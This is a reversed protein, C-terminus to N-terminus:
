GIVRVTSAEILDFDIAAGLGPGDYGHVLGARDPEIDNLVAYSQAATPLLIELYTCNAIALAVHLNAINNISNGGHHLEFSMHFGDALHAAKLVPTIGGKVAVDGRLHDTARMLIWAAYSHFGGPAYETAMVAIDLRACLKAYGAIDEENLPDEYWAYGHRELCRGLRVADAMGYAMAADWMLTFGDGVAARVAQALPEHLALDAPPHIKYGALGSDRIAIAQAVYADVTDLSPSSAYAPIAHRAAGLMRYVPLGVAKGGLDWLAVDVAGIARLPLARSRRMMLRHLRERDLPDQGILLPKLLHVLGEADIVASRYSAGLFAHGTVGADTAVTVLGLGAGEAVPPNNHSYRTAPLDRWAFLTVTLDTIRM